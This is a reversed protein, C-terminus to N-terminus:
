ATGNKRGSVNPHTWGSVHQLDYPSVKQKYEEPYEVGDMATQYYVYESCYFRKPNDECVGVFEFLGKFDYEITKRYDRAIRALLARRKGVKNYVPHRRIGILKRRLGGYRTPPTLELGKPTMEAILKQGAWGVIIGTHTSVSRDWMKGSTVKRTIAAFLGRGGVVVMDGTRLKQYKM